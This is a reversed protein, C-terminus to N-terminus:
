GSQFGLTLVMIDILRKIGELQGQERAVLQYGELEDARALLVKLSV